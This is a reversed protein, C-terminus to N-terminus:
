TKKKHLSMWTAATAASFLTVTLIIWPVPNKKEVIEAEQLPEQPLIDTTEKEEQGNAASATRVAAGCSILMASILLLAFLARVAQHHKM